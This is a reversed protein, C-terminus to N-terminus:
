KSTFPAKSERETMKSSFFSDVSSMFTNSLLASVSVSFPIPAYLACISSSASSKRASTDFPSALAASVAISSPTSVVSLDSSPMM